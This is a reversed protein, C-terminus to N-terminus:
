SGNSACRRCRFKIESEFSFRKGDLVFFFLSIFLIYFSKKRVNEEILRLLHSLLPHICHHHVHLTFDLSLNELQKLLKLLFKLDVKIQDLHDGIAAFIKELMVSIEGEASDGFASLAVVGIHAHQILCSLLAGLQGKDM